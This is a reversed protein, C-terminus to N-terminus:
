TGLSLYYDLFIFFCPFRTGLFCYLLDISVSRLSIIFLKDSLLNLILAALDEGLDLPFHM